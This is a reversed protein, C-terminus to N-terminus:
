EGLRLIFRGDEDTRFIEAGVADLRELTEPTPHGYSNTGVSIVATKPRMEDLLEECNSYKSGHHAVIYLDTDSLDERETLEREAKKEADGTVLMTFDDMRVRYILGDDNSPICFYEVSIDGFSLDRNNRAFLVTVNKRKATSMVDNYLSSEYAKEPLVLTGVEISNLLKKVGKAHDTHLHTLFLCDVRNRGNAHLYSSLMSGPNDAIGAAGCDIVVTNEHSTVAICQGSGVDLVALTGPDRLMASRMGVVLLVFSGICVGIPILATLRHKRRILIYLAFVLYVSALWLWVLKNEVYVTSFPIGAIFTVVLRIYRVFWSILWALARGVPAFVAGVACVIYGGCFLLSICWLCLINALLSLVSVYGFYLACLPLTLATAATSGAAIGALYVLARNKSEGILWTYIPQTLLLIGAMAAFSLQLSISGCAFPNALLILALAFSLSTIADNEQRFVYAMLLMTQMIAARVSSPPAGVMVVFGWVLAVCVLASRRNRGLILQLFGVLFAVHMGSVAVVHALGALSMSTSFADDGYYETKDGTLLALIFPSTDAPFLRRIENRLPEGISSLAYRLSREYGIVTFDGDLTALAYLGKSLNLDTEEGYRTLASKMKVEARIVDGPSLGSTQKAYDFLMGDTGDLEGGAFRVYLLLCSSRTEPAETLVADVSMKSGALAEAPVVDANYRLGYFGFGFTAALLILLLRKRTNGRLLLSALCLAACVLAMWFVARTDLLYHAIFVAASYGISVCALKRVGRM